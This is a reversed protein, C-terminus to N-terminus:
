TVPLNLFALAGRARSSCKEYRRNKQPPRPDLDGSPSPSPDRSPTQPFITGEVDIPTACLLVDEEDSALLIESETIAEAESHELDVLPRPHYWDTIM